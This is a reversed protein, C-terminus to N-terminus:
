VEYIIYAASKQLSDGIIRVDKIEAKKEKLRDIERNIKQEMKNFKIDFLEILKVKVM